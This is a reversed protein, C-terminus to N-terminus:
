NVIGHKVVNARQIAPLVQADYQDDDMDATQAIVRKIRAKLNNRTRKAERKLDSLKIRATLENERATFAQERLEERTGLYTYDWWKSAYETFLKADVTAGIYEESMRFEKRAKEAEAAVNTAETLKNVITNIDTM